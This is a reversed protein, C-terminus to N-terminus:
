PLRVFGGRGAHVLARVAFALYLNSNPNIIRLRDTGRLPSSIFLGEM